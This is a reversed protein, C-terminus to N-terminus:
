KGRAATDLAPSGSLRMVIRGNYVAFSDAVVDEAGQAWHLRFISRPPIPSLVPAAERFARLRASDKRVDMDMRGVDLLLQKNRSASVLVGEERPIFVLYPAVSDAAPSLRRSIVTDHVAAMAAASDATHRGTSDLATGSTGNPRSSAKGGCAAAVILVALVLYRAPDCPSLKM